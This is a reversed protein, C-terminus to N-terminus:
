SNTNHQQQMKWDYRVVVYMAPVLTVGLMIWYASGIGSLVSQGINIGHFFIFVMAAVQSLSVWIWNSRLFISHRLRHFVEYSLFLVLGIMGLTMFPAMSPAVSAYFSEPPLLDLQSHQEYALLGPHLLILLLVLWGSVHGYLSNSNIKDPYVISLAGLIYHTWMISWAWVGLLPFLSLPTFVPQWSYLDLWLLFPIGIVTVFLLWHIHRFFYNSLLGM